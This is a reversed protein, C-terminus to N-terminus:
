RSRLPSSRASARRDQRDRSAPASLPHPQAVLADVAARWRRAQRELAAVDRPDDVGTLESGAGIAVAGAGFWAAADALAIGGTPVVALEPFPGRLARLHRPGVTSAPFLKVAEAGADLAGAVETPTLAGPLTPLGTALMAAVLAPDAHPSVLFEAGAACAEQADAASRVSGIGVLVGAPVTSRLREVSALVGPTTLTLEIVRLGGAVLAHATAEAGAADPARVVALLGDARLATLM